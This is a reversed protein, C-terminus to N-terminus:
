ARLWNELRLGPVREFERTNGTVVTLGRARAIAAIQLDLPGIPTGAESLAARIEAAHSAADLDFDIIAFLSLFENVAQRNQAPNSSNDAGFWLEFASVTSLGLEGSHDRCQAVTATPKKRQLAIATDSDLLYRIVM